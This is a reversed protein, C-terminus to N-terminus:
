YLLFVFYENKERKVFKNKWKKLSSHSHKESSILLFFDLNKLFSFLKRRLNAFIYIKQWDKYTEKKIYLYHVVPANALIEQM